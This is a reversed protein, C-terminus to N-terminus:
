PFPHPVPNFTRHVDDTFGLVAPVTDYRRPGFNPMGHVAYLQISGPILVRTVVLGADRVDRTTIDCYVPELGVAEVRRRAEALGHEPAVPGVTRAVDRVPGADLFELHELMEPLGYLRVHDPFDRVNSYDPAPRWDPRTDILDRVWVAGQAAEIIAKRVAEAEDLRSAAGVCAFPGDRSTGRAVCLVTPIDIDSPLAYVRFELMSGAFYREYWAALEPESEVRLRTPTLRRAWTLMFGDREVVELLGSLLAQAENSHCAQGSSVSLALMDTSEELRPVYPIHVLCAPVFREADDRLRRAPLWTIPLDDHQRPFPFNEHRYQVESFLEFDHMDLAGPGLERKTAVVLDDSQIACCYREVCEGVASVAADEWTESMAGTNGAMEVGGIVEYSNPVSAVSFLRPEGPANLITRISKVISAPGVMETLPQPLTPTSTVAM